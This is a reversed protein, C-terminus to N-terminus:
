GCRRHHDDDGNRLNLRFLVLEHCEAATAATAGSPERARFSFVVDNVDVLRRLRELGGDALYMSRGAVM